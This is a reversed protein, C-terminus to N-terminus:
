FVMRATSPDWQLKRDSTLMIKQELRRIKGKRVGLMIGSVIMGLSGGWALPGGIGTLVKGTTDCEYNSSNGFDYTVCHDGAWVPILLALGVGFSVSTGILANRTRPVSEALQDRRYMDYALQKDQITPPPSAVTVPQAAAPQVAAPQPAAPQADVPPAAAPTAQGAEQAHAFGSASTVFLVASFFSMTIRQMSNEGQSNGFGPLGLAQHWDFRM